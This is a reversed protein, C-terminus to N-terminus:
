EIQKEKKGKSGKGGKEETVTYGKGIERDM